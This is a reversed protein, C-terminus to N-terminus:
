EKIPCGDVYNALHTVSESEGQLKCSHLEKGYYSWVIFNPCDKELCQKETDTFAKIDEDILHAMTM